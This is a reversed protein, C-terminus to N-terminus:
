DNTKICANRKIEVNYRKQEAVCTSDELELSASFITCRNAVTHGIIDVLTILGGPNCMKVM